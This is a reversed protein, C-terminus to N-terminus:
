KNDVGKEDNNLYKEIRSFSSKIRKNIEDPSFEGDRHSFSWNAILEMLENVRKENMTVFANVYLSHLLKEYIIIKYQLNKETSM